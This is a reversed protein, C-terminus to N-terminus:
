GRGMRNLSSGNFLTIEATSSQAFVQVCNFIILTIIIKRIQNIGIIIM